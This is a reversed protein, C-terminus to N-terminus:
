AFIAARRPTPISVLAARWGDPTVFLARVMDDPCALELVAGRAPSLGLQRLELAPPLAITVTHHREIVLLVREGLDDGAARADQLRSTVADATTTVLQEVSM